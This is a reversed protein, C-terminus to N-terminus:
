AGIEALLLHPGIYGLAMRKIEAVQETLLYSQRSGRRIEFDSRQNQARNVRWINAKGVIYQSIGM